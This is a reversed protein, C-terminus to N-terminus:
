CECNLGKQFFEAEGDRRLHLGRAIKIDWLRKMAKIENPIKSYEHKSLHIQINKKEKYRDGSLENGRNYVISLLAGQCHPHLDIVEPWIDYTQQAYNAKVRKTLQMATDKTITLNKVKTLGNVADNKKLGAVSQFKKIEDPTYFGQLDSAIQSKTQQGLDYGYGITIGSTGLVNGHKDKPVYPKAKFGEYSLIFEMTQKSVKYYEGNNLEFDLTECGHNCGSGMEGVVRIPHLFYISDSSPFAGAGTSESEKIKGKCEPFFKLNKARATQNAMHEANADCDKREKDTKARSVLGDLHTQMEDWFKQLTDGWESAHKVAYRSALERVDANRVANDMEFPYDIKGNGKEDKGSKDIADFLEKYLPNVSLENPGIKEKFHEMFNTFISANDTSATDFAKVWRFTIGHDPTCDEIAVYMSSLEFYEKGEMDKVRPKTEEIPLNREKNTRTESLTYADYTTDVIYDKHVTWNQASVDVGANKLVKYRDHSLTSEDIELIVGTKAEKVTNYDAEGKAYAKRLNTHTVSEKVKKAAVEEKRYLVTGSPIIMKTPQPREASTDAPYKKQATEAFAKVDDGTFLELHLVKKNSSPANNYEGVLGLPDGAKVVLPTTPIVVAGTELKEVAGTYIYRTDAGVEKGFINLIKYRKYGGIEVEKSDDLLLMTGKKLKDKEAAGADRVVAGDTKVVYNFRGTHMYLSFLTLKNTAPYELKHRLLFFGTSYGHKKETKDDEDYTYDPNLRYAVLEGDAIACVPKTDGEADSLAGGTFHVGGHWFGKANFLYNGSDVKALSEFCSDMDKIKKFPYAFSPISIMSTSM